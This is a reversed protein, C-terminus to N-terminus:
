RPHARGRERSVEMLKVVGLPGYEEMVRIELGARRVKEVTRRNVHSGTLRVLLPDLLDMLPGIVPRDIRVHELLLTIGGPRVVRALERLGRVPDPVSCFVFTAVASDFSDPPFPLDQVDAERVDVPM